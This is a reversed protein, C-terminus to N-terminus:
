KMFEKALKLFSAKETCVKGINMGNLADPIAPNPLCRIIQKHFLNAEVLISSYMGIVMDSYYILTNTDVDIKDAYTVIPYKSLSVFDMFYKENQNPHLKVVINAKKFFHQEFTEAVIAWIDTEDFGFKGKGGVNSMPDPAFLIIKKDYEVKLRGFLDEKQIDPRLQLLFQHHFNGTVVVESIENLNEELAIKFARDDTVFIKNPYVYGGDFKFRDTYRTYHDIFAISLIKRKRAESIFKLEIDSTYSTGTFVFDPQYDSFVVMEDNQQYVNIKLGYDKFFDYKRDSIIYYTEIKNLKILALIPKAGGPDSFIFLGRGKIETLQM